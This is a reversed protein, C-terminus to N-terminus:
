KTQSENGEPAPKLSHNGRGKLKDSIYKPSLVIADWACTSEGDTHYQTNTTSEHHCIGRILRYSKSEGDTHYQTNTQCIGQILRYSKSEYSITHKDYERSLLNRMDIPLVKVWWWHTITHKDYETIVSEKYWDTPSQSTHYQTNTMSEHHCIGREEYWDALSQSVPGDTRSQTNKM